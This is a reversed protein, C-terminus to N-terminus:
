SWSDWKKLERTVSKLFTGGEYWGPASWLEFHLHCATADGTQGVVGIQQGTYIRDGQKFTVKDRLHMYAYDRGTGRGDIVLYNGAAGQYGAYQVRGGRAAVLPTGCKAMVDQGQHTHGKRPAGVGDGYSHKGRIPFVDDYLSFFSDAGGDELEGGDPGVRFKYNGSPAATEQDLLGDWSFTAYSQAPVNQQVWSKVVSGSDRDVLEIRVDGPNDGKYLYTVNIPDQQDFFAKSPTVTIDGTGAGSQPPLQSEDVVKLAVPSKSSQGYRDAVKPKGSKASAPVKAVVRTKTVEDPKVVIPAGNGSFTVKSVQGLGRGTLAVSGGAISSHEAACKELCAVDTLAPPNPLSAGTGGGHADM